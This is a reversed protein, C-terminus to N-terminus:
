IDLQDPDRDLAIALGMKYVRHWEYDILEKKRELMDRFYAAVESSWQQHYEAYYEEAQDLLHEGAGIKNLLLLLEDIM